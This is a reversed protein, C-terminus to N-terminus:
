PSKEKGRERKVEQVQFFKGPNVRGGTKNIEIGTPPYNILSNNGPGTGKKREGKRLLERGGKGGGGGKRLKDRGM